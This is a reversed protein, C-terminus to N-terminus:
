LIAPIVNITRKTKSFKKKRELTKTIKKKVKIM